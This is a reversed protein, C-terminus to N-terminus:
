ELSFKQPINSEIKELEKVIEREGNPFVRYIIGDEEYLIPVELKKAEKQAKISAGIAAGALAAILTTKGKGTLLAGLAAGILGGAIAGEIIDQKNKAAM